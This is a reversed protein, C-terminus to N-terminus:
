IYHRPVRASFGTLLEYTITNCMQALEQLTIEQDQQKGILIVEDGVKGKSTAGIDVMLMDMCINGCIPHKKGHLLVYGQNSLSRRYGDGYGIAITVIKTDQSTIYTHHYSVGINQKVVKAYIIKSKLSLCPTIKHLNTNTCTTTPLYGYTMIGPRVMDLYSQPYNCIAGSNAIHSILNPNYQKAFDVVQKFTQLQQLTLEDNAIESNVLHSYIGVFELYKNNEGIFKILKIATDPRVGVRNMGTDVKLHIKVSTNHQHCYQIIQKAKLESSITIELQHKIFGSILEASFAGFVLIPKTIGNKKLTIGENLCSVGFYDVYDQTIQAIKILGHGYANAKVPFCIKGTGPIAARILQINNLLVQKSIEITTLHM